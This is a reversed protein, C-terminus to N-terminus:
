ARGLARRAKRVLVGALAVLVVLAGVLAAETDSCRGAHPAFAAM